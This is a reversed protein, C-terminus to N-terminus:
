SFLKVLYVVYTNGNVCNLKDEKLQGPELLIVIELGEGGV